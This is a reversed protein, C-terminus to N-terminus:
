PAIRAVALLAACIIAVEHGTLPETPRGDQETGGQTHPPIRPLQLGRGCIRRELDILEFRTAGTQARISDTM